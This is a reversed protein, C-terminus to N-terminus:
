RKPPDGPSTKEEKKDKNDQVLPSLGFLARDANRTLYGDLESHMVEARNDGLKLRELVYAGLLIKRRVDEKRERTKEAAELVQIRATLQDKKKKLTDIRHITNAM